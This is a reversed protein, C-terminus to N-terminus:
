QIFCRLCLIGGLFSSRCKDFVDLFVAASGVKNRHKRPQRCRCERDLWQSLRLPVRGADPDVM